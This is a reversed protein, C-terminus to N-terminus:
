GTSLGLTRELAARDTEPSAPASLTRPYALFLEGDFFYLHEADVSGHTGGVRHLTELAQLMRAMAAAEISPREDALCRGLPPAVWIQAADPDVRLVTPLSPHDARAFGKARELNTEDYDVVLVTRGLWRDLSIRAADRGDGVDFTVELRQDQAGAVPPRSTRRGTSVPAGREVVRASWALGLLRQRAEFADAPRAKPDRALLSAVVADHGSTLDPHYASPAPDILDADVPNAGEGTIMEIVLAGVAYLDSAVTAPRGERQEPSMYSFTGIAGATATNSLDGLHAAGFDALRPTGIADFLVNGPKVDRHLIGLRHAEGLAGLISTAIEIARRPALPEKALLDALSGGTMWELVMAPGDAHYAVLEVVSPHRLQRLARAEREFRLTADRGVGQAATRLFKLAVSRETLTDIAQIVKAHSTTAVERVVEYRGLLVARPTEVAPAHARARPAIARARMEGALEAAADVLGLDELLAALEPLAHTWEAADRPIGQLASVAREKRGHRMLLKALELRLDHAHPRTRLATEIAKAGDAPRGAREYSQAALAALGAAAYARGAEAHAGARALLAGAIRPHGRAELDGALALVADSSSTEMVLELAAAELALDGALASLRLARRGDGAELAARTAGAFDCARELEDALRLKGEDLAM